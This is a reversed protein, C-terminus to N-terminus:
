MGESERLYTIIGSVVDQLEDGREYMTEIQSLTITRRPGESGIRAQVLDALTGQQLGEKGYFSFKVRSADKSPPVGELYTGVKIEAGNFIVIDDIAKAGSKDDAAVNLAPASSLRRIAEAVNM